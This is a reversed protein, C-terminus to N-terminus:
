RAHLREARQGSVGAGSRRATRVRAARDDNPAADEAEVHPRAAAASDQWLLMAAYARWPRWREARRALAAANDDGTRQRLVLDGSPFADPEGLARLAVYAATWPGIGPISTLANIAADTDYCVDLAIAGDVTARALRRITAARSPMVGADELRADALKAPTPFLRALGDEADVATGFAAAVRGAITTAGRVSVQQGLIARVALEFGDWAGPVRIGCHRSWAARLWPDAGLHDGIVEPDAALDFLRRVREVILLLSSSDPLHVSV